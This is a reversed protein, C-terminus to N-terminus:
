KVTVTELSSFRVCEDFHERVLYYEINFLKCKNEIIAEFDEGKARADLALDVIFDRTQWIINQQAQFVTTNNM